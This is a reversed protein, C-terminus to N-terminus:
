DGWYGARHGRGLYRARGFQGPAYDYFGPWWRAPGAYGYLPACYRSYYQCPFAWAYTRVCGLSECAYTVPASHYRYHHHASPIRAVSRRRESRATTHAPTEHPASTAEDNSVSSPTTPATGSSTSPTNSLPTTSRTSPTTSPTYSPQQVTSPSSPNLTPSQTPPTPAPGSPVSSQQAQAHEILAYGGFVAVCGTMLLLALASREFRRTPMATEKSGINRQGFNVVINLTRLRFYNCRVISLSIAFAAARNQHRSSDQFRTGGEPDNRLRRRM